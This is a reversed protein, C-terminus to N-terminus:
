TRCCPPKRWGLAFRRMSAFFADVISFLAIAQQDVQREVSWLSPFLCSKLDFGQQITLRQLLM